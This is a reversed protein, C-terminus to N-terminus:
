FRSGPYFFEVGNEKVKFQFSHLKKILGGPADKIIVTMQGHVDAAIGTSLTEAKILIDSIYDLHSLMQLAEDSSHIDEHNLIVLSCDMESTLSRCYQLFDLVHKASGHATSLRREGLFELNLLDIFHLKNKNRQVSLNCGMKRLVRDYHSFPQALGLFVVTGDGETSLARKLFHHLVFAGSTEVCDEVFALRWPPSGGRGLGLAEELLDPDRPPPPSPNM